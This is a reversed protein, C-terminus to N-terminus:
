GESWERAGGARGRGEGEGEGRAGPGAVRGGGWGALTEATLRHRYEFMRELKRKVFRGGFWRGPAGFPLAYLIWDELWCADNGDPLMRHTHEWLAFPGRVQIDRFQLGPVCNGIRSMWPLRLPGIGVRLTVLAGDEIRGEDVVEVREWPPVLRQLTGPETHWRFVEEAPAEIRTRRVFKETKLADL